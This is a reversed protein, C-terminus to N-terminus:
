KWAPTLYINRVNVSTKLQVGFSGLSSYRSEIALGNLDISGMHSQMQLPPVGTM